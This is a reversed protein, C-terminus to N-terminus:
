ARNASTYGGKNNLSANVSVQYVRWGFVIAWVWGVLFVTLLAQLIGIIINRGPQKSLCAYVLTGIPCLIINLILLILAHTPDIPDLDAENCM